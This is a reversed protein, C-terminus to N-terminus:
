VSSTGSGNPTESRAGIGLGTESGAVRQEDRQRLREGLALLPALLALLGYVIADLYALVPHQSWQWLWFFTVALATCGLGLSLSTLGGIKPHLFRLILPLPAISLVAMIAALATDDV